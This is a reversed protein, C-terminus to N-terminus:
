LRCGAGMIATTLTRPPVTAGVPALASGLELTFATVTAAAGIVQGNFQAVLQQTSVPGATAQFDDFQYIQLEAVWGAALARECSVVARPTAPLKVSISQETGSDGEVFGDAVFAVYDWQQSSWPVQTSWYSQWRERVIGSTDTLKLFQAQARAM